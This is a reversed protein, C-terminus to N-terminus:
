FHFLSKGEGTFLDCTKIFGNGEFEVFVGKIEGLSQEYNDEFLLKNNVFLFVQKNKNVLKVTNWNSLDLVFNSLDKNKGEYSKESVVNVVRFSCGANVFKFRISGNFGSVKIQASNCYIGRSSSSNKFTTNFVFDDKFYGTSTYNGLGTFISSSTDLGFRHLKEDDIHFLSDATTKVAPFQYYKQPLDAKRHYGLAIWKDSRICVPSKLLISKKTRLKVSFVDPFLYNHAISKQTPDLFIFPTKDGFDIFVSDPIDPAQVEFLVTAPLVGEIKVQKISGPFSNRSPTMKVVLLVLLILLIAFGAILTIRKKSPNIKNEISVEAEASTNNDSGAVTDVREPDAPIYGSYQILADITAQQPLYDDDVSIKGFVRKLTNSSINVGTESFIERSLDLFENHKWNKVDGRNFRLGCNKVIANLRNRKDM